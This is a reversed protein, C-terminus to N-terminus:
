RMSSSLKALRRRLSELTENLLDLHTLVHPDTALAHIKDRSLAGSELAGLTRTLYAEIQALSLATERLDDDVFLLLNEIDYLGALAGNPPYPKTARDM